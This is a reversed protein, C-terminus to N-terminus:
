AGKPKTPSTNSQHTTVRHLAGLHRVVCTVSGSSNPATISEAPWWGLHGRIRAKVWGAV